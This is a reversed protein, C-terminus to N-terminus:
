EGILYFGRWAELSSWPRPARARPSPRESFCTESRLEDTSGRALPIGREALRVLLSDKGALHGAGVAVFVTGPTQM